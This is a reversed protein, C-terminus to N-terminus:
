QCPGDKCSLTGTAATMTNFIAGYSKELIRLKQIMACDLAAVDRTTTAAMLRRERALASVQGRLDDVLGEGEPKRKLFLFPRSKRM